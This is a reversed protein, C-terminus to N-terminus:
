EIMRYFSVRRSIANKGEGFTTDIGKGEVTLRGEDIGYKNVLIDKVKEARQKSLKNNYEPTGTQDCFGVVNLKLDTNSKMINAIAKIKVQEADSVDKQDTAFNVSFPLAYYTYQDKKMEDIRKQLDDNVPKQANKLQNELDDIQQELKKEKAKSVALDSSLAEIQENLADCDNNKDSNCCAVLEKDAKTLGFNYMYGIGLYANCRGSVPSGKFWFKPNCVDDVGVLGDIFLTNHENIYWDFEMGGRAYLCWNGNGSNGLRYGIGSGAMIFLDVPREPDYSFANMISWMMDAGATGYRDAPYKATSTFRPLGIYLRVNWLPHFKKQIFVHAGLGLSRFVDGNQKNIQINMGFDAGISWNSWFGMRPYDQVRPKEQASVGLSFSLISLLVGFQLIRKTM